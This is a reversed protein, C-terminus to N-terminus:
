MEVNNFKDLRAQHRGGHYKTVLFMNFCKIADQLSILRSGLVLVNANNHERALKAMVDDVCLAARINKYRNAVMSMGIGSGCILVGFICEDKIIKKSLKHAFEPYDVSDASDTGLDLFDCEKFHIILNKKLEFGAHDCAICIKKM